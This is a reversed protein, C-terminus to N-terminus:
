AEVVTYSTLWHTPLEHSIGNIAAFKFQGQNELEKADGAGPYLSFWFDKRLGCYRFLDSWILRDALGFYRMELAIQRWPSGRAFTRLSGGDSRIQRSDELWAMQAGFAANLAVEQYTGIFLRSAEFYNDPNSSDGDIYISASQVTTATSGFYVVSNKLGRVDDDTISANAGLLSGDYCDSTVAGTTQLEGTWATGSFTRVRWKASDSLNHRCLAVCNVSVDASWSVRFERGDADTTTRCVKSRLPNALNSAPYNSDATVASLTATSLDVANNALIRLNAM